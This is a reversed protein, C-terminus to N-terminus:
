LRPTTSPLPVDNLSRVAFSTSVHRSNLRTSKRDSSAECTSTTAVTVFGAPLLPVSLSTFSIPRTGVTVTSSCPAPSLDSSRRTPFPPLHARSAYCVCPSSPVTITLRLTSYCLSVLC